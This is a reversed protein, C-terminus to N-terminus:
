TTWTFLLTKVKKGRKEKSRISTKERVATEMDRKHGKRGEREEGETLRDKKGAKSRSQEEENKKGWKRPSRSM